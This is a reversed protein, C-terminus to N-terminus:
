LGLKKKIESVDAQLRRQETIITELNLPHKDGEAGVKEGFQILHYVDSIDTSVKAVAAALTKIQGELSAADAMTLGGTTDWLPTSDAVLNADWPKGLTVDGAWQTAASEPRLFPSGTWHAVWYGGSPKPNNLVTSESGYLMVKWGAQVIAADFARLYGADVRTEYDLAVCVGHPVRHSTMWSIVARADAAPDGGQERTFIPLRWRAPQSRWEADTWVHPTHGGIYGAAVEWAPPSSPPSAADYMRRM